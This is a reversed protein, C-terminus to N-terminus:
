ASAPLESTLATHDAIYRYIAMVREIVHIMSFAVHGKGRYDQIYAKTHGEHAPLRYLQCLFCSSLEAVCEMFPGDANQGSLHADVAHSLEHFFTTVDDTGLAITRDSPRFYGYCKTTLEKTVTLGLNVAVDFLPLKEPDFAEMDRSASTLPEGETDEYRFVPMARFGVLRDHTEEDHDLEGTDGTTREGATGNRIMPVLIYLARAGKVVHRGVALWQRFGRADNSGHCFVVLQNLTSWKSLPIDAGRSFLNKAIFSAVVQSDLREVLQDLVKQANDTIM